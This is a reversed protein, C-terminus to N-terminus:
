MTQLAQIIIFFLVMKFLEMIRRARSEGIPMDGCLGNAHQVVRCVYATYQCCMCSCSTLVQVQAMDNQKENDIVSCLQKELINTQSVKTQCEVVRRM